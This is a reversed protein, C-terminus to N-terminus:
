IAGKLAQSVLRARTTADFPHILANELAAVTVYGLNSLNANTGSIQQVRAQDYPSLQPNDPMFVATDPGSQASSKPASPMDKHQTDQAFAPSSAAAVALAGALLIRSLKTM